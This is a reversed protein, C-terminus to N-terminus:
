AFVRKYGPPPGGEEVGGGAAVLRSRLAELGGSEVKFGAHRRSARNSGSASREASLHVQQAGCLYWAGTPSEAHTVRTLPQLGLVGGYFATARELAESGEDITLNIHDVGVLFGM